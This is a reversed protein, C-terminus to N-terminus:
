SSHYLCISKMTTESRNMVGVMIASASTTSGTDVESSCSPMTVHWPQLWGPWNWASVFTSSGSPSHLDSRSIM